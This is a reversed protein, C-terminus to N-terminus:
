EDLHADLHAPLWRPFEALSELVTTAGAARLEAELHPGTTVAVMHAGAQAAARVDNPTDGVYVAAGEDRLTEGKADAYRWGYVADVALGVQELCRHANPEYKATVVICRGGVAHVAAVSERAGPLLHTGPVGHVVYLERFRDSWATALDTEFREGFELDLNRRLLADLMEDTAVPAGTEEQLEVLTAAIGPRSDVLTMDLDFGVVLVAPLTGADAHTDCGRRVNGRHWGLHLRRLRDVPARLAPALRRSPEAAARLAVGPARQALDSSRGRGAGPDGGVTGHGDALDVGPGGRGHGGPHGLEDAHQVLRYAGDRVQTVSGPAGPLDPDVVTQISDVALVQPTTTAAHALVDPLSTEAVVLLDPHLAGVREARLKVQACSEEATVLLCRTGGAALRGLAQLLLTSKGM